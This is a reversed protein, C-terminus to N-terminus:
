GNGNVLNDDDEKKGEEVLKNVEEEKLKRHLELNYVEDMKPVDFQKDVIAIEDRYAKVMSVLGEIEVKKDEIAKEMQMVYKLADYYTFMETVEMTKAIKRKSPEVEDEGIELPVFKYTPKVKPAVIDKAETVKKTM